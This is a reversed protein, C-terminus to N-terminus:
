RAPPPRRIRAPVQGMTGAFLMLVGVSTLPRVHAAAPPERVFALLLVLPALLLLVSGGVQLSRRWPVAHRCYYAGVAVNLLGALLLYVHNARFIFRVTENSGYLDPGRFKLYFGTGVFVLITVGGVLRHLASLSM